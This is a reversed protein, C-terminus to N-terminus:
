VRSFRKTVLARVLALCAKQYPRPHRGGTLPVIHVGREIPRVAANLSIGDDAQHAPPPMGFVHAACYTTPPRGFEAARCRCGTRLVSDYHVFRASVWPQLHEPSAALRFAGKLSRALTLPSGRAPCM